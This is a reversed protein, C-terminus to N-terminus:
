ALNNRLSDARVAERQLLPSPPATDSGDQVWVRLLLLTSARAAVVADRRSQGLPHLAPPVAGPTRWPSSRMIAHSQFGSRIEKQVDGPGRTGLPM